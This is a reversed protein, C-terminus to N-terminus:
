NKEKSERNKAAAMGSEKIRAKNWVEIFWTDM